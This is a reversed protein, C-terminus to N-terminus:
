PPLGSKASVLRELSRLYAGPHRRFRRGLIRAHRQQDLQRRLARWLHPLQTYFFWRCAHRFIAPEKEFLLKRTWMAYVGVGYGFLSVM